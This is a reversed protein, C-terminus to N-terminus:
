RIASRAKAIASEATMGIVAGSELGALRREAEVSWAEDIETSPSLSALLKDALYARDEPTLRLAQTEVDAISVPM